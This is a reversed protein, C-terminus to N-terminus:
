QQHEHCHPCVAAKKSLLRGCNWCMAAGSAARPPAPAPAEAAMLTRTNAQSLESPRPTTRTGHLVDSDLLRQLDEQLDRASRFRDLPNTRLARMIIRELEVPISADVERPAPFDGALARREIVSPDIDFIPASGTLLEYLIVGLSYVDSAFTARGRFHEPAMYPPSGIRTKAYTIDRMLRSTGFDAVKLCGDSRLLLNSPKLDRHLVKCRHAHDLAAASQCIIETAERPSLKGRARLIDSLAQGEVYEMVVHFLQRIQVAFPDRPGSRWSLDSLGATYVSVVNPHDMAALIRSEMLKQALEANQDHPIKLAVRKGIWGDEALYVTAFGGSGLVRQLVYKGLRHEGEGPTPLMM